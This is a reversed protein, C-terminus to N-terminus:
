LEVKGTARLADLAKLMEFEAQMQNKISKETAVKNAAQAVAILEPLPIHRLESYSGSAEIRDIAELYLQEAQEQPTKMNSEMCFVTQGIGTVSALM